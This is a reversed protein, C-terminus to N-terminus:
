FTKDINRKKKLRTAATVKVKCKEKEQVRLKNTDTVYKKQQIPGNDLKLRRGVGHRETFKATEATKWNQYLWGFILAMLIACCISGILMAWDAISFVAPSECICFFILFFRRSFDGIPTKILKESNKLQLVPGSRCAIVSLLPLKTRVHEVM